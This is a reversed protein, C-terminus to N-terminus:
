TTRTSVAGDAPAVRRLASAHQGSARTALGAPDANAGVARPVCGTHREAASTQQPTPPAAALPAIRGRGGPMARVCAATVWARATRRAAIRAPRGSADLARGARLASARRTRQGTSLPSANARSSCIRHITLPHTQHVSTPDPPPSPPPPPLPPLRDSARATALATPRASICPAIPAELAPSAHAGAMAWASAAVLVTIPASFTRATTERLATPASARATSACGMRRIATSPVLALVTCAVHLPKSAQTATARATSVNATRDACVARRATLRRVARSCIVSRAAGGLSACARVRTANATRAASQHPASRPCRRMPPPPRLSSQLARRQADTESLALLAHVSERHASAADAASNRWATTQVAATTRATM